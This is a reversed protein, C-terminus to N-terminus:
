FAEITAEDSWAITSTDETNQTRPKSYNIPCM